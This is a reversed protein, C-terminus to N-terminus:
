VPTHIYAATYFIMMITTACLCRLGYRRGVIGVLHIPFSVSFDLLFVFFLVLYLVCVCGNLPVEGSVVGSLGTGSSANVWECGRLPLLIEESRGITMM